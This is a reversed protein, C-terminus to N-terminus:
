IYYNIGYEADLQEFQDTSIRASIVTDPALTPLSDIFDCANLLEGSDLDRVEYIGNVSDACVYVHNSRAEGLVAVAAIAADYDTGASDYIARVAELHIAYSDGATDMAHQIKQVYERALDTLDKM